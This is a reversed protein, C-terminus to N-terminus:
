QSLKLYIVITYVNLNRLYNGCKQDLNKAVNVDLAISTDIIFCRKEVESWVVIDPENRKLPILM